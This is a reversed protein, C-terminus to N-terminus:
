KIFNEDKVKMRILGDKWDSKDVKLGNTISDNKLAIAARRKSKKVHREVRNEKLKKQISWSDPQFKIRKKCVIPNM